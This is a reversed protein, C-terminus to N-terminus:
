SSGKAQEELILKGIGGEITIDLNAPAEGFLSNTFAEGDWTLNHPHISGLEVM